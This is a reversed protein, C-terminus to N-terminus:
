KLWEHLTKTNEMLSLLLYELVINLSAFKNTHLIMRYFNVLQTGIMQPFITYKEYGAVTWIFNTIM